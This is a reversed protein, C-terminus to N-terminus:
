KTIHVIYIYVQYFTQYLVFSPAAACPPTCCNSIAGGVKKYLHLCLSIGTADQARGRYLTDIMRFRQDVPVMYFNTYKPLQRSM